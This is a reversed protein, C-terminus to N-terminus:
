EGDGYFNPELPLVNLKTPVGYMSRPYLFGDEVRDGVRPRCTSSLSVKLPSTNVWTKPDSPDNTEALTLLMEKPRSLHVRTGVVIM